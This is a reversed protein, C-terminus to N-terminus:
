LVLGRCGAAAPGGAAHPAPSLAARGTLSVVTIWQVDIDPGERMQQVGKATYLDIVPFASGAMGPLSYTWGSEGAVPACQLRWSTEKWFSLSM